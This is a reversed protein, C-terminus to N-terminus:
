IFTIIIQETNLYQKLKTLDLTLDPDTIGNTFCNSGEGM